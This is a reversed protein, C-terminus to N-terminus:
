QKQQLDASKCKKVEKKDTGFDNQPNSFDWLEPKATSELENELQDELAPFFDIGTRQEVEDITVVFELLKNKMREKHPLLFALAKKHQLDLVVKYYFRPVNIKNTEGIPNGAGKLVPGTVVMVEGNNWAFNRMLRELEAWKYRNFHSLQPSMNSTFFTEDMATCNFQMPRSPLMHGADHQKSDRYDDYEPTGTAITPDPRFNNRRDVKKALRAKSISYAVWEPQEHQESYSLTFYTHEVIVGTTSTPLYSAYQAIGGQGLLLAAIVITVKM